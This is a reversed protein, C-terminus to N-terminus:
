RRKLSQSAPMSRPGPCALNMRMFGSGASGFTIGANLWLGADEVFFAELADDALGLARCDLWM